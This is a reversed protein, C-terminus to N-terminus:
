QAGGSTPVSTPVPPPFPTMPFRLTTSSTVTLQALAASTGPKDRTTGCTDTPWQVHVARGSRDLLWLAPVLEMDATCAINGRAKDSPTALAALLPKVDGGLHEEIIIHAPVPRSPQKAGPEAPTAEDPGASFYGDLRCRVVGATVFGEPVSGTGFSAPDALEAASVGPVAVHCDYGAMIAAPEPVYRTVGGPILGCGAIVLASSGLAGLVLASSGRARFALARPALPARRTAPTTRGRRLLHSSSVLCLTALCYPTRTVYRYLAPPLRLGVPRM